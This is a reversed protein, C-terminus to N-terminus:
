LNLFIDGGQDGILKGMTPTQNSYKPINELLYSYLKTVSCISNKRFYSLILGTFISNNGWGSDSVLQEYTGANIAIRNKIKLIDKLYVKKNKKKESRYISFGSFCCDFLILLHKSNIYKTWLSIDNMSILDNYSKEKAEYPVIYGIEEGNILHSTGHGHFSIVVLDNPKTGCNLRNKFYFEINKKTVNENILVESNFNYLKSTTSLDQADNVANLLNNFYKYKDIGFSIWFKNNYEYKFDQIKTKISKQIGRKKNKYINIFLKIVDSKIKSKKLIKYFGKEVFLNLNNNFYINQDFYKNLSNFLGECLIINEVNKPLKFVKIFLKVWNANNKKGILM